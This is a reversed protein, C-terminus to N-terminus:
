EQRSINQISQIIRREGLIHDVQTFVLLQGIAIESNQMLFSYEFKKKLASDGQLRLLYCEGFLETTPCAAKSFDLVSLRIGFSEIAKLKVRIFNRQNEDWLAETVEEQQKLNGQPDSIKIKYHDTDSVVLVQSETKSCGLSSCDSFKMQAQDNPRFAKHLPHQGLIQDMQSLWGQPDSVEAHGTLSVALVFLLSFFAIRAM